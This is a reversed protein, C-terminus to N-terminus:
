YEFVCHEYANIVTTGGYESKQPINIGYSRHVHGHLFYKPKYGDLLDRFCEFGRHALNELDNLGYMPAHTLLIDFGRHRWLAPRTRAIRQRMQAETYMNEGARYRYSGGLGLIRVGEHVYLRGDVCVCGEPPRKQFDANHNGRVYLVPCRSMTALFELYERRLDGCGLILDFEDLKGPTFYEYYYRSEVDAVALIKM